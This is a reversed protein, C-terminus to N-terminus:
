ARTSLIMMFLSALLFTGLGAAAKMSADPDAHTMMQFLAEGLGALGVAVIITGLLIGFTGRM